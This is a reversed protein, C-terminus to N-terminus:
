LEDVRRRLSSMPLGFERVIAQWTTAGLFGSAIRWREEDSRHPLSTRLAEDSITTTCAEQWVRPLASGGSEGEVIFLGYVSRGGRIEWAADLHRLMQHRGPMWTTTTTPGRETRKGEVVVIADPTEIFADPYTEGELVYWARGAKGDRLAAVARAVTEPDRELLKQREAITEASGQLLRGDDLKVNAVLWELLSRPPQLARENEDWFHHQISLNQGRWRRGTDPVCDALDLLRGLWGAPQALLAEFVPVVRTKSSDFPKRSTM